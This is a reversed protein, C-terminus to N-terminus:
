EAATAPRRRLGPRSVRRREAQSKEEVQRFEPELEKLRAVLGSLDYLNSRKGRSPSRREIRQLLKMAELEAIYRQVQRASLGLREGLTKKSPHPKREAEWWFDALHMLIALHTPNLKLRPQARLLLSPIICFGFGMVEKGWKRESAKKAKLPHLPIVKASTKDKDAM